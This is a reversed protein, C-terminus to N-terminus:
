QEKQTILEINNGTKTPCIFQSTEKDAENIPRLQPCSTRRQVLVNGLQITMLYFDNSNIQM